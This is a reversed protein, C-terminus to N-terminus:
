LRRFISSTQALARVYSRILEAYDRAYREPSRSDISPALDVGCRAIFQKIINVKDDWSTPDIQDDFVKRIHREVSELKLQEALIDLIARLGGNTGDHADSFAGQLTSGKTHYKQELIEKARGEAESKPLSGGRSVCAAFHYSYYDSIAHSFENFDSVTNKRLAYGMRAEDHPIGIRRAIEREDLQQLITELSGM